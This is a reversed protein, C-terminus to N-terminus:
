ESHEKIFAKFMAFARIRMNLTIKPVIELKAEGNLAAKEEPTVSKLFDMLPKDLPTKEKGVELLGSDKAQSFVMQELTSRGNANLDSSKFFWDRIDKGTLNIGASKQYSIPKYTMWIRYDAINLKDMDITKDSKRAVTNLYATVNDYLLPVDLEVKTEAQTGDKDKLGLTIDSYAHRLTEKTLPVTANVLSNIKEAVEAQQDKPVQTNIYDWVSRGTKGIIGSLESGYKGEAAKIADVTKTVETKTETAVVLMEHVPKIQKGSSSFFIGLLAVAAPKDTKALEAVASLVKGEMSLRSKLEGYMTNGSPAISHAANHMAYIMQETIGAEKLDKVSTAIPKILKALEVSNLKEKQADAQLALFIPNPAKKNGFLEMGRLQDALTIADGFKNTSNQPQVELAFEMYGANVLSLAREANPLIVSLKSSDVFAQGLTNAHAKAADVLKPHDKASLNSLAFLLDALKAVNQPEIGESSVAAIAEIISLGTASALKQAIKTIDEAQKQAAVEAKTPAPTVLGKVKGYGWPAVETLTLYIAVGAAIRGVVAGTWGKWGEPANSKGFVDHTFPKVWWRTFRELRGFQGAEIKTLRDELASSSKGMWSQAKNLAPELVQARLSRDDNTSQIAADIIATRVGKQRYFYDLLRFEDAESLGEDHYVGSNIAEFVSSYRGSKLNRIFGDLLDNGLTERGQAITAGILDRAAAKRNTFFKLRSSALADSDLVGIEALKDLIQVKQFIPLPDKGDSGRLQSVRAIIGRSGQGTPHQRVQAIYRGLEAETLPIEPVVEIPKGLAELKEVFQVTDQRPSSRSLDTSIRNLDKLLDDFAKSHRGSQEDALKQLNSDLANTLRDILDRRQELKSISAGQTDPNLKDIQSQLSDSSARLDAIPGPDRSPYLQRRTREFKEAELTDQGVSKELVKIRALADERTTKIPVRKFMDGGTRNHGSSSKIGQVLIGENALRQALQARLGDNQVANVHSTLISNVDSGSGASVVLRFLENRDLAIARGSFKICGGSRLENVIKRLLDLEQANVDVTVPPPCM